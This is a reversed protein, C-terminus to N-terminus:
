GRNAEPDNEAVCRILHSSRSTCTKLPITWNQLKASLDTDLKYRRKGEQIVSEQVFGFKENFNERGKPLWFLDELWAGPFLWLEFINITGLGTKHAKTLERALMRDSSCQWSHISQDPTLRFVNFSCMLFTTTKNLFAFRQHKNWLRVGKAEKRTHADGQALSLIVHTKLAFM